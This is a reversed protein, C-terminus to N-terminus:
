VYCFHQKSSNGNTYPVNIVNMSINIKCKKKDKKNMNKTTNGGEVAVTNTFNLNKM